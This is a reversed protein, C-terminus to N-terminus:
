QVAGLGDAAQEILKAWATPTMPNADRMKLAVAIGWDKWASASDGLAANTKSRILTMVGAAQTMANDMVTQQAARLATAVAAAKARAPQPIKM